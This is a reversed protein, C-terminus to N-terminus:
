LNKISTAGHMKEGGTWKFVKVDGCRDQRFVFSEGNGYFQASGRKNEWVDSAYCGFINHTTSEIIMVTKKNQRCKHLLTPFSCGDRLLSFLRKWKQFRLLHPNLLSRFRSCCEYPASRYRSSYFLLFDRVFVRLTM